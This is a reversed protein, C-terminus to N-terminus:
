NQGQEGAGTPPGLGRVVAPLVPQRATFLVGIVPQKDEFVESPGFSRRQIKNGCYSEWRTSFGAQCRARMRHRRLHWEIRYVASLDPFLLGGGGEVKLVLRQLHAVRLGVIVVACATCGM